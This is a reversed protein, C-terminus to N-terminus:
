LIDKISVQKVRGTDILKELINAINMRVVENDKRVKYVSGSYGHIEYHDEDTVVRDIGSNMRWNDADLYGGSWGGLVKHFTTGDDQEIAVIVWNDPEYIM